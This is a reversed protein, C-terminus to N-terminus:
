ARGGTPHEGSSDPSFGLQTLRAEMKNLLNEVREERQEMRDMCGLARGLYETNKEIIRSADEQAAKREDHIAKLEVTFTADRDKMHQLFQVTLYALVVLAPVQKAAEILFDM